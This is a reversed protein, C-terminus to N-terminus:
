CREVALPSKCSSSARSRGLPGAPWNVEYSVGRKCLDNLVGNFHICKGHEM